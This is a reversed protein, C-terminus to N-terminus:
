RRKWRSSRCRSPRPGPVARPDCDLDNVDIVLKQLEVPRPLPYLSIAPLPMADFDLQKFKDAFKPPRVAERKVPTIKTSREATARM